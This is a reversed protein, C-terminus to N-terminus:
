LSAAELHAAEVRKRAYERTVTYEKVGLSPVEFMADVM